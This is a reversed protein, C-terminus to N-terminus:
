HEIMLLREGERDAIAESCDKLYAVAREMIAMANTGAIDYARAIVAMEEAATPGFLEARLLRRGDHASMCAIVSIEALSLNFSTGKPWWVDDFRSPFPQGRESALWDIVQLGIDGAPAPLSLVRPGARWAEWFAKWSGACALVALEGLAGPSLVSSELTKPM